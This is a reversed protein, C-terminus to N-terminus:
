RRQVRGAWPAVRPLLVTVRSSLVGSSIPVEGIGRRSQSSWSISDWAPAISGRARGSGSGQKGLREVIAVVCRRRNMVRWDRV